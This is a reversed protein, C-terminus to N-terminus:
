SESNGKLRNWIRGLLNKPQESAGRPASNAGREDQREGGRGGRGRQRRPPRGGESRAQGEGAGGVRGQGTAKGTETRGRGGDQRKKEQGARSQKPRDGGSSLDSRGRGQGQRKYV